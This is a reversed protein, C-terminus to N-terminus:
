VSFGETRRLFALVGVGVGGTNAHLAHMAHTALLEAPFAGAPGGGGEWLYGIPGSCDKSGLEVNLASNM